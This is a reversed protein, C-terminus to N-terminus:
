ISRNKAEALYRYIKSIRSKVASEAPEQGYTSQFWLLMNRVLDAQTEPLGDPLNAQRIIEMTFADWDYEQPRGGRNPMQPMTNPKSLDSLNHHAVRVSGENKEFAALTDFLFAPYLGKQQAFAELDNRAVLSNAHIGILAAGNTTTDAKLIKGIIASTLMQRAAVVESPKYSDAPSIKAPDFGCWLAAAQDVTFIDVYMWNSVDSM